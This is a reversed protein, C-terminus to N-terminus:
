NKEFTLRDTGGNGGSVDILEIKTTNQSLIDWDDNLDEFPNSDDVNFFINFDIDNNPDDDNSNSKTVSWTGVLTNQGNTATLVGNDGFTFTYASFNSLENQGSDIFQTIKWTGSKVNNSLSQVIQETSSAGNDDDDSCATLFLFSSMIFLSLFKFKLIKM